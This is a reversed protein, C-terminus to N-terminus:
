NAYNGVPINLESAINLYRSEFQLSVAEREQEPFNALFSRVAFALNYTRAHSVFNKLMRLGVRTRHKAPESQNLFRLATALELLAPSPIIRAEITPDDEFELKTHFREKLAWDQDRTGTYIAGLNQDAIIICDPHKYIVENLTEIELQGENLIGLFLTTNRESSRSLENLLIISPQQLATALRSYHFEWVGTRKNQLMRGEIEQSSISQHLPIRVLPRNLRVALNICAETKGTGAHGSLLVNEGNAIAGDFMVTETIGDWEREYYEHDLAPTNLHAFYRSVTFDGDQETVVSTQTPVSAVQEVARDLVEVEVASDIVRETYSPVREIEIAGGKSYVSLSMPDNKAFDWVDMLDTVLMHGDTNPAGKDADRQLKQLLVSPKTEGTPDTVVETLDRIDSSTIGKSFPMHTAIDDRLGDVFTDLDTIRKWAGAVGRMKTNDGLTRTYVLTDGDFPITVTQRVNKEPTGLADRTTFESQTITAFM